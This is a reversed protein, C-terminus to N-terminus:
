LVQKFDLRIGFSVPSTIMYDDAYASNDAEGTIITKVAVTRESM